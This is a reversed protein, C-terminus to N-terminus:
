SAPLPHEPSLAAELAAANEAMVSLYDGTHPRNGCPDFVVSALGRTKLEAM